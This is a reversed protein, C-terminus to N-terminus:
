LEIYLWIMSIVIIIVPISLLILKSALIVGM